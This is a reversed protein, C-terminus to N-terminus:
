VTERSACVCMCAIFRARACVCWLFVVLNKFFGVLNNEYKRYKAVIIGSTSEFLDPSSSFFMKFQYKHRKFIDDEAQVSLSGPRTALPSSMRM